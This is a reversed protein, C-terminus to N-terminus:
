WLSVLKRPEKGSTELRGRDVVEVDLVRGHLSDRDVGAIVEGDGTHGDVVRSTVRAVTAVVGVSEVDAAGVVDNDVTGLDVVLVVANGDVGACVDGELVAKARTAVTQGDAADAAAVVVDDVSNSEGVVLDGLAGVGDADLGGHVGGSLDVLDGVGVEGHGVDGLVTDQDLLVVLSAVQLALGGAPEGDGTKGEAVDLTLARNGARAM